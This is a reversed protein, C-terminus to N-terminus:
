MQSLFGVSLVSLFVYKKSFGFLLLTGSTALGTMVGHMLRYKFMAKSVESIYWSRNSHVIRKSVFDADEYKPVRMHDRNRENIADQTVRRLESFDYFQDCEKTDM